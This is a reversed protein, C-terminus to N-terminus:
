MVGLLLILGHMVCFKILKQYSEVCTQKQLLLQLYCVFSPVAELLFLLHCKSYDWTGVKQSLDTNVYMNPCDTVNKLLLM